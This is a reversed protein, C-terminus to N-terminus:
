LPMKRFATTSGEGTNDETVGVPVLEALLSEDRGLAEVGAGEDVGALLRRKRNSVDQRHRLARFSRDDAVDLLLNAVAACESAGGAVIGGDDAM